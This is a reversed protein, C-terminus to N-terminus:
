GTEGMLRQAVAEEKFHLRKVLHVVTGREPESEFRVQDVLAHMLALGRGHEADGTAMGTLSLAAHDFGRGVDVVRIHAATPSITVAVDYADGPGSHDIVNACAETVALDVADADETEVGVEDMAARILHRTIPVSLRDRPLQLSLTVQFRRGGSGETPEDLPEPEVVPWRYRHAVTRDGGAELDVSLRCEHDGAALSEMLSVAASGRARAATSGALASTFRCLGPSTAPGFPCRRNRLVARHENAEVVEFDGGLRREAEVLRAAMARGDDAVGEDAALRDALTAGARAAADELSFGSALDGSLLGLLHIPDATPFRDTGAPALDIDREPFRAVSLDMVVRDDPDAISAALHAAAEHAQTAGPGIPEGVLDDVPLPRVVLMCRQGSWDLSAWRPGAPPRSLADRILPRALEVVGPEVAHRSLHAAMDSEVLDSAGHQRTDLCWDM